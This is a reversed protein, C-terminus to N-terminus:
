SIERLDKDIRVKGLRLTAPKQAIASLIRLNKKDYDVSRLVGIGLFRKQRDYFAVLLNEARQEMILRYDEDREVTVENLPFGRVKARELYKTFSLERLTKRHEGDRERVARPSEVRMQRFGALATHLTACQSVALGSKELCFVIDPKIAKALQLKFFVAEEGSTWGDTNVMLYEAAANDVIEQKLLAVAEITKDTVTAPSTAGVFIANTLTLAFLDTVPETLTVYAVTAPSGIDSQGLDEDLVAVRSGVTVMRNALYTCFSSKGSDVGGLIMIVRPKKTIERALECAAKWSRPITSGEVEHFDADAGLVLDFEATEEIEFPLRKGERIVIRRSNVIQFGFVQAKGSVIAVSAPGDVLITKGVDVKRNM